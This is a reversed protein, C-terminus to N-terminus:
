VCLGTIMWQTEEKNTNIVPFIFGIFLITWGFILHCYLLIQKERPCQIIKVNIYM